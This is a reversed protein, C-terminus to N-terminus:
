SKAPTNEEHWLPNIRTIYTFLDFRSFGISKLEDISNKRDNESNFGPILPIRILCDGARGRAALLGLNQRVRENSRGTYRRYTEPNMDKIDIIFEDVINSLSEIAEVPVNLSTELTIRWCHRM